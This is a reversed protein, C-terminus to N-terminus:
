LKGHGGLFYGTGILAVIAIIGALAYFPM